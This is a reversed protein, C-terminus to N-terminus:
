SMNMTKTKTQFKKTKLTTKLIIKKFKIFKKNYM